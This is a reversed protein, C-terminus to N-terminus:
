YIGRRKGRKFHGGRGKPNFMRRSNLFKEAKELVPKEEEETLAKVTLDVGCVKIKSDEGLAKMIQFIFVFDILYWARKRGYESPLLKLLLYVVTKFRNTM